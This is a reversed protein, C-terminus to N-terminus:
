ARFHEANTALAYIIFVDVALSIISTGPARGISLLQLVAAVAAFIIGLQRGREKLNMVQIGAYLQLAGVALIVIALVAFLGGVGGVTGAGGLILLGGLIGLAGGVILLVGAATVIGPRTTPAPSPEPEGPPPPLNESM